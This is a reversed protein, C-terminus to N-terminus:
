RPSRAARTPARGPSTPIRRRFASTGDELYDPRASRIADARACAPLHARSHTLACFSIVHLFQKGLRCHRPPLFPLRRIPRLSGGARRISSGVANPMDEAPPPYRPQCSAVGRRVVAHALPPTRSAGSTVLFTTSTSGPWLPHQRHHPVGTVPAPQITPARSRSTDSVM